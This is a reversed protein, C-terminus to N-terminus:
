NQKDAEAFYGKRALVRINKDKPKIEIKRFEGDRKENSSAYAVTYQSRMEEQIADFIKELPMKGSVEFVRGGTEESLKKLDSDSSAYVGYMRPDVYYVSYIIADARHAAEIAERVKYHSGQDVGDTILVLVKRGVQGKLQDNAALYVSDFLLTGKPNSVPIPGLGSFSTSVRLEDLGKELLRASNTFDQMLEVESGFSILFALDKERLVQRFFQSGARREEAILTEQSRSVDILLGITLPLDNERSFARIEQKKGDEFVDIAEKTLDRRYAGSKDRATFFLNVLNVDVRIIPEDQALLLSVGALAAAGSAILLLGLRRM